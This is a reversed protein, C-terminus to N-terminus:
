VFPYLLLGCAIMVATQSGTMGVVRGFGDMRESSVGIAHSVRGIVLSLCGLHVWMAPAGQLEAMTLLLLALPAYEAFNAHVRARRELEPHGSSGFGIHHRRRYIIVRVSLVIFLLGLGAAYPAVIPLPEAM